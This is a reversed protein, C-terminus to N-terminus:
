RRGRRLMSLALLVGGLIVILLPLLYSSFSVSEIRSIVDSNASAQAAAPAGWLALGAAITRAFRWM